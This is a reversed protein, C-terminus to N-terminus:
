AMDFECDKGPGVRGYLLTFGKPVRGHLREAIAAHDVAVADHQGVAAFIFRPSESFTFKRSFKGTIPDLAIFVAAHAAVTSLALFKALDNQFNPYSHPVFKLELIAEIQNGSCVVIDPVFNRGADTGNLELLPEVFITNEPLEIRLARYLAAQLCRESNLLGHQYDQSVHLNWAKQLKLPNM